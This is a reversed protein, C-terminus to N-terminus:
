ASQASSHLATLELKIGYNDLWKHVDRNVFKFRNDVHLVRMKTDVQTDFFSHYQKLKVSVIESLKTKFFYTVTQCSQVDTLRFFYREGRIGPVHSPGWLNAITLDRIKDPQSILEKLFPSVTPKAQICSTCQPNLDESTDVEMGNVMGKSKMLKVAMYSIHRM